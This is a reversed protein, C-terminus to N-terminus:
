LWRRTRGRYLAYADGFTEAMAREEFRIYWRDAAVIFGVVLVGPIASGLALWTGFLALVLGLYMPNRTYQFLGDTVLYDPLNFTRINTGVRAFKWSGWMAMGLGAAIPIAGLSRVVPSAIMGVPWLVHAMVM